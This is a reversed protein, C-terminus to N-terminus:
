ENRTRRRTQVNLASEPVVHFLSPQVRNRHNLAERVLFNVGVSVRLAGIDPERKLRKVLDETIRVQTSLLSLIEPSCWAPQHRPMERRLGVQGM